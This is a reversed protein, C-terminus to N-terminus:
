PRRTRPAGSRYVQTLAHGGPSDARMATPVRYSTRGHEGLRDFLKSQFRQFLVPVALTLKLVPVQGKGEADVKGYIQTCLRDFFTSARVLQEVKGM